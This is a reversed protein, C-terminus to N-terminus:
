IWRMRRLIALQLLVAVALGGCVIWFADPANAGPLGGVNIGLLGTLFGLPLFLASLISILYMNRNLRESLKGALEDRVLAMRERMADADEVVREIADLEEALGRLDNSELWQPHDLQVNRLADRQPQLYRRLIISRRRLEALRGRLENGGGDLVEEEMDDAEDELTRWFGEIRQVLREILRVLFEASDQPGQGLELMHVLDEVARVRRRSLSVIRCPDIWLRISVMDEPDEGEITNIGRLIVILGNGVRTVRPRTEEAVLADIITPDLYSLNEVIWGPADPHEARLHVWGLTDSRLVNAAEAASLPRPADPGDLVYGTQILDEPRTVLEYM